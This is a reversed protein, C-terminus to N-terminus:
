RGEAVPALQGSATHATVHDFCLSLAAGVAGLAMSRQGLSASMVQVAVGGAQLSRKRVQARIPELLLDGAQAVGGGIVVVGPNLLNVVGALAIGIYEGAQALLQQALHDGQAAAM